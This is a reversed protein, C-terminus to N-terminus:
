TRWHHIPWQALIKSCSSWPEVLAAAIFDALQLGAKQHAPRASIKGLMYDHGQESLSRKVAARLEEIVKPVKKGKAEEDMILMQREVRERPMRVLTQALLEHTLVKGAVHIPLRSRSKQVEACWCEFVLGQAVLSEFFRKPMESSWDRNTLQRAHFEYGARLGLTKRIASFIDELAQESGPVWITCTAYIPYSRPSRGPEGYADMYLRGGPSAKKGLSSVKM